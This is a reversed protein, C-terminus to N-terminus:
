IETTKKVLDVPYGGKLNDVITCGGGRMKEVGM